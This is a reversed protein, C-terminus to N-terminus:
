TALGKLRGVHVKNIHSCCIMFLYAALKLGCEVRLTIFAGKMLYEM